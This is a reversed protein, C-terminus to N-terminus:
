PATTGAAPTTGDTGSAGTSGSSGGGEAPKDGPMVAISQFREPIMDTVVAGDTKIVEKDDTGRLALTFTSFQANYVLMEAEEPTVAFTATRPMDEVSNVGINPLGAKEDLTRNPGLALIEINQLVTQTLQVDSGEMTPMTWSAIVDVFDGTMVQMSLLNSENIFLSVARYGDPLNYALSLEEKKVLRQERFPEGPLIVDKAYLGEIAASDSLIGEPLSDVSIEQMRIDATVVQEGVKIERVSVPITMKPREESPVQQNRFSGYLLVGCIVTLLLSFILAKKNLKGM